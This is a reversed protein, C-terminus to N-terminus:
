SFIFAEALLHAIERRVAQNIFGASLPLVFGVAWLFVWFLLFRWKFAPNMWVRPHFISGTKRCIGAPFFLTSPPFCILNWIMEAAILNIGGFLDLHKKLQPWTQGHLFYVWLVSNCVRVLTMQTSLCVQILKRCVTM